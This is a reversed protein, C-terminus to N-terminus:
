LTLTNANAFADKLRIDHTVVVYIAEPRNQMHEKMLAISADAWDDDLASTPEDLLYLAAGEELTWLLWFRQLQGVSLEHPFKRELGELGLERAKARWNKLSMDLHEELRLYPVWPGQQAMMAMPASQAYIEAGTGRYDGFLARLLTTKGVGSAGLLLNMGPHLEIAPYTIQTTGLRVTNSPFTLM